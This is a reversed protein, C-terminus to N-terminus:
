TGLNLCSFRHRPVSPPPKIEWPPWWQTGASHSACSFLSSVCQSGLQWWLQNWIPGGQLKMLTSVELMSWLRLWNGDLCQLMVRHQSPYTSTLQPLSNTDPTWIRSKAARSHNPQNLQLHKHSLDPRSFPSSQMFIWFETKCKHWFFRLLQM